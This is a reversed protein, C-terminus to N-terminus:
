DDFGVAVFNCPKDANRDEPSGVSQMVLSAEVHFDKWRIASEYEASPCTSNPTKRGNPRIMSLTLAAQRAAALCNAASGHSGDASIWCVPPQVSTQHDGM